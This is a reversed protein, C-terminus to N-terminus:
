LAVEIGCHASLHKSNTYVTKLRRKQKVDGKSKRATDM